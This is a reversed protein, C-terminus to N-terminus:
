NAPMGKPYIGRCALFEQGLSSRGPQCSTMDLEIDFAALNPGPPGESRHFLVYLSKANAAVMAKMRRGLEYRYGYAGLRGGDHFTRPIAMFRLGHNAAALGPALFSMAADSLVILAGDEFAPAQVAFVDSGVPARGWKPSVTYAIMLGAISIVCLAPLWAARHKLSRALVMTGTIVFVGVLCEAAV